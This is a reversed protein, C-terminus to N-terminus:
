FILITLIQYITSEGLRKMGVKGSLEVRDWPIDQITEVWVCCLGVILSNVGLLSPDRPHEGTGPTHKSQNMRM